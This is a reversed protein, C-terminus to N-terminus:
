RHRGPRGRVERLGRLGVPLGIFVALAGMWTWFPQGTMFGGKLSGVGQFMWVAGVAILVAGAVLTVWRGFM